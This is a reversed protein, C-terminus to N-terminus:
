AEGQPVRFSVPQWKERRVERTESKAGQDMWVLAFLCVLVQGAALVAPHLNWAAPTTHDPSGGDRWGQRWEWGSATRRWGDSVQSPLSDAAQSWAKPLEVTTALYGAIFLIVLTGTIGRM